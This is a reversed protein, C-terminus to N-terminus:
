IGRVDAKVGSLDRPTKPGRYKDPTFGGNETNLRYKTILPHVRESIILVFHRHFSFNLKLCVTDNSVVTLIIFVLLKQLIMIASTIFDM